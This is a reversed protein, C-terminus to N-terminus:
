RLSSTSMSSPPPFECIREIEGAPCGHFTSLTISRSLANSLRPRPARCRPIQRAPPRRKRADIMGRIFNVVKPTQIGVLDYGISMDYIPEGVVGAMSVDGLLIGSVDPAGAHPHADRLSTNSLSDPV